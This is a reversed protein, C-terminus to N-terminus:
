KNERDLNVLKAFVNDYVQISSYLEGFQPDMNVPKDITAAVLTGGKKAALRQSMAAPMIPIGALLPQAMALGGVVTIAHVFERRTLQGERFKKVFDHVQDQQLSM